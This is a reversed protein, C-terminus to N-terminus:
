EKERMSHGERPARRWRQSLDRARVLARPLFAEFAIDVKTGACTSSCDLELSHMQTVVRRGNWHGRDLPENNRSRVVVDIDVSTPSCQMGRGINLRSRSSQTPWWSETLHYYHGGSEYMPKVWHYLRFKDKACRTIHAISRNTPDVVLKNVLLDAYTIFLNRVSM